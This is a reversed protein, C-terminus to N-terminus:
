SLQQVLENAALRGGLMAGNLSANTVHDGCVVVGRPVSFRESRRVGTLDTGPPQAPLADKIQRVAVLEWQKVSQGFWETMQDVVAQYVTSVLETQQSAWRNSGRAGADQHSATGSDEAARQDALPNSTGNPHPTQGILNVSILSRGSPAAAPSANSIVFAHNVPGHGDGNLMLVREHIPPDPASFYVVTTELYNRNEFEGNSVGAIRSMSKGDVALIVGASPLREGSELEVEGDHSIARVVAGTRLDGTPLKSALQDPIAQIGQRPYSINGSAMMRFVFRLFNASTSLERELFIGSLWPRLFGDIFSDSFQYHDRLLEVTSVDQSQKLWYDAEGSMADRRLRFLRWRDALSGISNLLTSLLYQPRRWPDSMRVWKGSARILAGPELPTLRLSPYDLLQQAEPYATQFVQFGRDLLYGDISDTRVRGGFGDSAELVIARRGFQQLYNAATLGAIGGGIVLAPLQNSM